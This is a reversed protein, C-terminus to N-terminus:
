PRLTAHFDFWGRRYLSGRGSNQQTWEFAVEELSKWKGPTRDGIPGSSGRPFTPAYIKLLEATRLAKRHGWRLWTPGFDYSLNHASQDVCKFAKYGFCKLVSFYGLDHAEVSVYTPLDVDNLAKLCYIDHGEIDIKLYFPVGYKSLISAFRVGPVEMPVAKEGNRGANDLVFSSFDKHVPNVWFTQMGEKDSIGVNCITLTERAVADSFRRQCFEALTPDAEIGVVRFGQQLYYATDDGNNM